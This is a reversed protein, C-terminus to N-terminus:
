SVRRRLYAQRNAVSLEEQLKRYASRYFEGAWSGPDYGRKRLAANRERINIAARRHLEALTRLEAEQAPNLADNPHRVRMARIVRGRSEMNAVMQQTLVTKVTGTCGQWLVVGVLGCPLLYLVRKGSGNAVRVGQALQTLLLRLLQGRTRQDIGSHREVFRDLAHDTIVFRTAMPPEDPRSARSTVAGRVRAPM